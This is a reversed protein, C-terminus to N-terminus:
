SEVIKKNKLSLDPPISTTITNRIADLIGTRAFHRHVVLSVERVPKPNTFEQVRLMQKKSLTATALKPLITVGGFQDLMPKINEINSAEYSFNEIDRDKKGLSCLNNLQSRLCHGEELLWLRSTDIDKPSLAKKKVKDRKSFYALFEEYFLTREALLDDKAPGAIIGMDL